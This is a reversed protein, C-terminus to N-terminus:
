SARLGQTPLLNMELISELSSRARESGQEFIEDVLSEDVFILNSKGNQLLDLRYKGEFTKLWISAVSAALRHADLWAQVIEGLRGARDRLEVETLEQAFRERAYSEAEIGLKKAVLEEERTLKPLEQSPALSARLWNDSSSRSGDVRVEM